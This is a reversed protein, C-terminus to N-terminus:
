NLPAFICARRRKAIIDEAALLLTYILCPDSSYLPQLLAKFEQFSIISKLYIHM